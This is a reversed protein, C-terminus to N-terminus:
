DTIEVSIGSKRLEEEEEEIDRMREDILEAIVSNPRGNMQSIHSYQAASVIQRIHETLPFPEEWEFRIQSGLREHMTMSHIGKMYKQLIMFLACDMWARPCINSPGIGLFEQTAFHMEMTFTRWKPYITRKLVKASNKKKPNTHMTYLQKIFKRAPYMLFGFYHDKGNEDSEDIKRVRGFPQKSKRELLTEIPNKSNNNLFYCVTFKNSNESSRYLKIDSLSSTSGDTQDESYKSKLADLDLDNIMWDIFREVHQLADSKSMRKMLEEAEVEIPLRSDTQKMEEEYRQRDEASIDLKDLDWNEVFEEIPQESECQTVIAEPEFCDNSGYLTREADTMETFIKDSLADSGYLLYGYVECAKMLAKMGKDSTGERAEIEYIVGARSDLPVKCPISMHSPCTYQARIDIKVRESMKKRTFAGFNLPLGSGKMQILVQMSKNGYKNFLHYWNSEEKKNKKNNDDDDDSEDDFQNDKTVIQDMVSSPFHNLFLNKWMTENNCLAHYSARNLRTLQGMSQATTFSSLYCMIDDTEVLHIWEGGQDNWTCSEGMPRGVLSM